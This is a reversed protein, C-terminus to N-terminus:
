PSPAKSHWSNLGMARDWTKLLQEDHRNVSWGWSRGLEQSGGQHEPTHWMLGKPAAYLPVGKSSTLQSRSEKKRSRIRKQWLIPRASLTMMWEDPSFVMGAGNSSTTM